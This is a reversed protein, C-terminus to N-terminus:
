PCIVFDVIEGSTNVQVVYPFSNFTLILYTNNGNYLNYLVGNLLTTYVKAGIVPVLNAESIYTYYNVSTIIDNCTNASSVSNNYGRLHYAVVPTVTPTVTNTPTHTPTMTMTPTVTQTITPTLTSTPTISPTQTPTRTPTGTPTPTINVFYGIACSQSDVIKILFNTEDYPSPVDFSYPFVSVTSVYVCSASMSNCYYVNVPTNATISSIIVEQSM